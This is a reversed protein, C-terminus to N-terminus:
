DGAPNGDNQKRMIGRTSGSAHKDSFGNGDRIL